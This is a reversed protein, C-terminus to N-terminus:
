GLTTNLNNDQVGGLISRDTAVANSGSGRKKRQKNAATKAASETNANSVQVTSVAPDAAAVTTTHGGGGCM